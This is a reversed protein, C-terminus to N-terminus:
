FCRTWARTTLAKAWIVAPRWSWANKTRHRRGFGIMAARRKNATQGGRFVIVNKAYRELRGSLYELHDTRETIVVPVPGDELV